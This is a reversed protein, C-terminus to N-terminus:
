TLVRMAGPVYNPPVDTDGALVTGGASPNGSWIQLTGATIPSTAGAYTTQYAFIDVSSVTWTQGAPVVFDDAIRFGGTVSGSFGLTTNTANMESWTYGAPAASGVPPAVISLTGTSFNGNNYIQQGHLAGTFMALVTLLSFILRSGM